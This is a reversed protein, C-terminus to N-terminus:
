PVEFRITQRVRTTGERRRPFSLGEAKKRVCSGVQEVLVRAGTVRVRSVDGKRGVDFAVTLDGSQSALQACIQAAPELASAIPASMERKGRAGSVALAGLSARRATPVAMPPAAPQASGEAAGSGGGGSETSPAAGLALDPASPAPEVSEKAREKRGRKRPPPEAAEGGAVRTEDASPEAEPRPATASTDGAQPESHRGASSTPLAEEDDFASGSGTGREARWAPSRDVRRKRGGALSWRAQNHELLITVSGDSATIVTDDPYVADGRGLPRPEAAERAATVVGSLEVVKGAPGGSDSGKGESCGASLALACAVTMTTLRAAARAM